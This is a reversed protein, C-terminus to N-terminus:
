PKPYLLTTFGTQKDTSSLLFPYHFASFTVLWISLIGPKSILLNFFSHSKRTTSLNKSILTNKIQPEVKTATLCCSAGKFNDFQQLFYGLFEMFIKLLLRELYQFYQKFFQFFCFFFCIKLRNDCVTLCSTDAM